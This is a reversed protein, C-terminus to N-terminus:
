CYLADYDTYRDSQVDVTVDHGITRSADSVM